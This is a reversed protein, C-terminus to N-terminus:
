LQRPKGKLTPVLPDEEDTMLEGHTLEALRFQQKYPIYGRKKWSTMSQPTLGLARCAQSLNGFYEIVEDITM